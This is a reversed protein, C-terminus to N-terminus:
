RREGNHSDNNRKVMDGKRGAENIVWDIPGMPTELSMM